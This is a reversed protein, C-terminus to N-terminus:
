YFPHHPMDLDRALDAHAVQGRYLNLGHALVPDSRLASELGRNAIKLAYPFTAHTLAYTSTRPVIGPMNSVGYHIIGEEVFTPQDHTTLRITEVCGGQDISVDVIVGGEQMSAVMQKTILKPTKRATVLVAGILLDATEVVSSINETTSLMTKIKNQYQQDIWKLCDPNSDLITVQSGLGVAIAAANIGVTGGGVIVTHGLMTYSPVGGLLIGKGRLNKQLYAAGIQAALRGAVESMPKLLPLSGDDAKITEYAVAKIKRNLLANTLSLDPALHLFTYLIQDPKLLSYEEELPEKVKIIMEAHDYVKKITSVIKAGAKEYDKDSILIGKGAQSQVFVSHGHQVLESVNQDTLGVRYESPKIEKPVGIIM